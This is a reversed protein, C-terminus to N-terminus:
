FLSSIYYIYFVIMMYGVWRSMHKSQCLFYLLVTIALMLPLTFSPIIDLVKLEGFFRPISIVAYTNFINSGIINGVAMEANGKLTAKISVIVEPLSTGLAVLTLAIVGSSIGMIGSLKEIGVVTYNSSIFIGVVSAVLILFQLGLNVKFHDEEVEQETDNDSKLTMLLFIGLAVLLIISEYIEVVQDRLLFYILFASILLIPLDTFSLDRKITVKKGVILVLGFVLLINTINSGLANGVVIESSGSYVAAISSALEPLSTGMAVITVGIIYDPLGFHKGIKESAAIFWDSSKLLGFLSVSFVALWLLIDM